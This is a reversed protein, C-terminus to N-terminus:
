VAPMGTRHLTVRFSLVFRDFAHLQASPHFAAAMCAWLFAMFLTPFAQLCDMIDKKGTPMYRLGHLAPLHAIECLHPASFANGAGHIAAAVADLYAAKLIITCHIAKMRTIAWHRASM